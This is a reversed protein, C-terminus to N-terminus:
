IGVTIMSGAENVRIQRNGFNEKNKFVIPRERTGINSCVSKEPQFV